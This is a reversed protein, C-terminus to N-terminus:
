AYDIYASLSSGSCSLIPRRFIPLGQWDIRVQEHGSEMGFAVAANVDKTIGSNELV